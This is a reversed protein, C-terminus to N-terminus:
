SGRELDKLFTWTHTGAAPNAALDRRLPELDAAVDIDYWEPLRHVTLGEKCCIELTQSVVQESSWTIGQFLARHLRKM